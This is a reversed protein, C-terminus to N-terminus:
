SYSAIMEHVGMGKDLWKLLTDKATEFSQFLRIKSPVDHYVKWYGSYLFNKGDHHIFGSVDEVPYGLLIGIEHPFAEQETMYREYHLRFRQLVAGLNFNSYGESALIKRVEPKKLFEELEKRQFLLYTNKEGRSLLRFCSLDTGKLIARLSREQHKAITLLNSIKIRTIVPACQLVLRTELEKVDMKCVIEFAEQCM